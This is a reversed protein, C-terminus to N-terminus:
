PFVLFFNRALPSKQDLPRLHRRFFYLDGLRGELTLMLVFFYNRATTPPLELVLLLLSLAVQKRSALVPQVGIVKGTPSPSKSPIPTPVV